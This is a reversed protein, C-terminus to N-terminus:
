LSGFPSCTIQKGPTPDSCGSCPAAVQTCRSLVSGDTKYATYSWSQAGLKDMVLFGFSNSYTLQGVVTGAAPPITISAPLAADLNDGGHGVVFTAPHGSSFSIGQFDHVHGHMALGIGAPYYANPFTAGMVSLMGPNGGTVTSGPTYGLIPHHVAMISLLGPNVLSAASMLEAQYNMFPLSSAAYASKAANSSDFAIFQTDALNLAWPDNYNGVNDNAPDNCNKTASYPNPDLYRYWGQGGRNCSEHNGRVMLWPAAQLLPAAPQFIDADWVDSGYGWPSGACQPQDSPCPNDRYHYDGVHVVLDPKMNAAISSILAFPWQTPWLSPDTCAQWANGIAMRCGTDGLVVIRQPNAKPLPLKKGAVTAVMAGSPINLECTTTTFVSAKTNVTTPGIVPDSNSPRIPITAPGVRLNMPSTVGDITISPCALYPTNLRAIAQNNAGLEVWAADGLAADSPCEVLVNYTDSCAPDGDTVTVALTVQGPATCALTPNQASADSLTGSSTTWHYSIPSPAGDLDHAVTTLAISTGTPPTSTVSDVIACVNLLGNVLVSGTHSTEHCTVSVTVPSTQHATVSFSASGGCSLSGDASTASLQITDPGGAPLSIVSSITASHSVDISGTKSVGPGTVTYSVTNVVIGGQVIVALRAEGINEDSADTGCGAFSCAGGALFVSLLLRAKTNM